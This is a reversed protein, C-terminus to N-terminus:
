TQLTAELVVPYHDSADTDLRFHRNPSITSVFGELNVDTPNKVFIHDIRMVPNNSWSTPDPFSTLAKKAADNLSEYFTDEYGARTLADLVLSREHPTHWGRAEYLDLIEKWSTQSCDSKQFTNFDGCILHPVGKFFAQTEQLVRHIQKERLEESKHDLHGFAVGICLNDIKLKAAGFSRPDVVDRKQNGLEIDGEEVSLEIPLCEILPHASLIANGFMVDKGFYSNDTAGIFQIYRLSTVESLKHLFTLEDRPPIFVSPIPKDRGEGHQVKTYYDVSVPDTQPPRAFPHLCENLCLIDPGVENVAQVIRDFNCQHFADRWGHINYTMLRISKEPPNAQVVLANAKFLTILICVLSQAKTCEAILKRCRCCPM